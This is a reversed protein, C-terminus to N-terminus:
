GRDETKESAEDLTERTAQSRVRHYLGFAFVLLVIWLLVTRFTQDDAM